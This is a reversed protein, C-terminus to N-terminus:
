CTTCSRRPAITTPGTSACRTSSPRPRSRACASTRAASCRWPGRSAGATATSCRCPGCTSRSTRCPGPPRTACRTSTPAATIPSWARRTAPPARPTASRSRTGSTGRAKSDRWRSTRRSCRKTSMSAWASAPEPTNATASTSSSRRAGTSARLLASRRGRDGARVRPRHGAGASRLPEDAVRAAACRAAHEAHQAGRRAGAGRLAGRGDRAHEVADRQGHQRPRRRSRAAGGGAAGLARASRGTYRRAGHIVAPLDGFVEASREVFSVPSLAVYNAANRELGQDYISTM